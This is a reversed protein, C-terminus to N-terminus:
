SLSDFGVRRYFCPEGEEDTLELSELDYENTSEYVKVVRCKEGFLDVVSGLVFVLKKMIKEILRFDQKGFEV